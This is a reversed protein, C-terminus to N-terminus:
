QISFALLVNGPTDMPFVAYGSGVLLWGGAVTMGPARISGGKAKAGNVTTFDRASDYEWITHGDTSRVAHLRGDGGPVFVVGPIATAAAANWVHSGEPGLPVSWLREGTSIQVAALGGGSLGFYVKEEDAAGGWIIGSQPQDAVKIRWLTTGHKDPDLGFVDGDKTGAVLIRRGDGLTRLIPSNGIDWDPGNEKPCNETIADGRCGVLFADKEQAQYFWLRKGTRMDVAMVSDSTAAAPETESDGTGFYIAHLKADVTPSNWVSVGAPAWLQTGMSNKKTPKPEEAVTYTKWVKKGTNADLAVVSGRFTCCPYDLSKASFEEFSSVPVYLREEYLTPSATIRATFNDEVHNTWLIEGTQADVAYVNAKLDGFYAAYTAAHGKIRGLTIANRVGAKAQFSWYVCGTAADLSYVYGTDAGVFVRNSVLTPQGYASVGGPYGFAWKLELHPVQGATLGAALASQFRSNTVDAGWGNWAPAASPDSIPPNSACRNPMQKADGMARGGLLSGSLSEAVRRKEEDTLSQGQARMVGSNLADYITEPALQRLTAPDPAKVASNPNGHCAMCHQQFIGYGAETGISKVEVPQAPTATQQAAQAHATSPSFRGFAIVWLAM